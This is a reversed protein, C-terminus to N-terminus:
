RGYGYGYPRGRDIVDFSWSRRSTNGAQDRVVLEAVHRGANLDDRFRVEDGEFRVRSSVDRGNLRLVVSRRDIGSRDDDVKASIETWGRERVRDGHSPTLGSIVPPTTDRRAERDRVIDVQATVRRAGNDLTAVARPFANAHDHRRVVYRTEYVGPRTETMAQNRLEGPVDLTARQGPTGVLRFRLEDGPQIRGETNLVFREIRPAQAQAVVAPTGFQVTFVPANQAVAAGLPALLALAAATTRLTTKM